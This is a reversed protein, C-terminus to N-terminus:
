YLVSGLARGFFKLETVIDPENSFDTFPPVFCFTSSKEVILEDGADVSLRKSLEGRGFRLVDLM